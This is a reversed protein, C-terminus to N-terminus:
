WEVRAYGGTGSYHNESGAPGGAGYTTNIAPDAQAGSYGPTGFYGSSTGGTLPGAGGNQSPAGGLTLVTSGNKKILTDGGPAGSNWINGCTYSGGAGITIEITDGEVVAIAYDICGGGGGGSRYYNEALNPGCQSGGGAGGGTGTVFIEDVGAPIVFSNVGSTFPGASGLVYLDRSSFGTLANVMM